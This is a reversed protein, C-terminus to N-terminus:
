IDLLQLCHIQALLYHLSTSDYKLWKGEKLFELGSIAAPFSGKGDWWLRHGEQTMSSLHRPSEWIRAKICLDKVRYVDM